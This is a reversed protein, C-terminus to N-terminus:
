MRLVVVSTYEVTSLPRVIIDLAALALLSRVTYAPYATISEYNFEEFYIEVNILNHQYTKGDWVDFVVKSEFNEL